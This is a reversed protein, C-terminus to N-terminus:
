NLNSLEEDILEEISKVQLEKQKKEIEINLVPKLYEQVFRVFKKTSERLHVNKKNLGHMADHALKFLSNSQEAQHKLLNALLKFQEKEGLREVEKDSINKELVMLKDILEPDQNLHYSSLLAEKQTKMKQLDDSTRYGSLQLRMNSIAKSLVRKSIAPQANQDNKKKECADYIKKLLAQSILLGPAERRVFENLIWLTEHEETEKIDIKEFRRSFAPDTKIREEYMNTAGICYPLSDPSTDLVTKLREGVNNNKEVVTHIEDFFVIADKKHKGLRQIILQLRDKTEYTKANLQSTNIMFIKKGKLSPPVDEDGRAIKLALGKVIETKGVGSKGCLLPHSRCGSKASDLCKMLREIEMNRGVIPEIRGEKAATTLNLCSHIHEPCPKLWKIYALLAFITAVVVGATILLATLVPFTASMAAFIVLPAGIIQGYAKLLYSADWSTDPEKGIEFFNMSMILTDLLGHILSSIYGLTSRSTMKELRNEADFFKAECVALSALVTNIEKGKGNLMGELEDWVVLDLCNKLGSNNINEINKLIMSDFLMKLQNSNMALIIKRLSPRLRQYESSNFANVIKPLCEDGVSAKKSFEIVENSLKSNRHFFDKFRVWATNEKELQKLIPDKSIYQHWNNINTSASNPSFVSQRISNLTIATM